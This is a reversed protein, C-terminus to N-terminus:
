KLYEKAKERFAAEREAGKTGGSKMCGHIKHIGKRYFTDGGRATEAEITLKYNLAVTPMEIVATGCNPCQSAKLAKPKVDLPLSHEDGM